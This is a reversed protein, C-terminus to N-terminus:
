KFRKTGGWIGAAFWGTYIGIRVKVEEKAPRNKNCELVIRLMSAALNCINQAHRIPNTNGSTEPDQFFGCSAIYAITSILLQYFFFSNFFCM